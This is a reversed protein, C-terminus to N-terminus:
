ITPSDTMAPPLRIKPSHRRRDSSVPRRKEGSPCRTLEGPSTKAASVRFRRSNVGALLYLDFGGGSGGDCQGGCAGVAFTEHNDLEILVTLTSDGVVSRCVHRPVGGTWWLRIPM